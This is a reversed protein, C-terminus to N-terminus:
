YYNSISNKFYMCNCLIVVVFVVVNIIIIIIIIIIINYLQIIIYM